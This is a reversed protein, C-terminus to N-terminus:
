DSRGVGWGVTFMLMMPMLTYKPMEMYGLWIVTLAILTLPLNMWKKM